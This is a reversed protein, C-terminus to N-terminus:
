KKEEGKREKNRKKEREAKETKKKKERGKNREKKGKEEKERGKNREKEKGKKEKKIPASGFKVVTPDHQIHQIQIDYWLLGIDLLIHVQRPSLEFQKLINQSRLFISKVKDMM